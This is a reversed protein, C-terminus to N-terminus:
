SRKERASGNERGYERKFGTSWLRLGVHTDLQQFNLKNTLKTQFKFKLGLGAGHM